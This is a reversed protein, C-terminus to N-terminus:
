DPRFSPLFHPSQQSDSLQFLAPLFRYVLPLILVIVTLAMLIPQLQKSSKPLFTGVVNIKEIQKPCVRSFYESRDKQVLHKMRRKREEMKQKMSVPTGYWCLVQSHTLFLELLPISTVDRSTLKM